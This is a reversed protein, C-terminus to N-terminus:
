RRRLFGRVLGYLATLAWAAEMLFASLNFAHVMSLLILLSGALNLLLAPPRRPDLRDVQAGAYAALVLLVGAIGGADLLATPLAALPSPM